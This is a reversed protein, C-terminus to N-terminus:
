FYIGIGLLPGHLEQDATFTRERVTHEIDWIWVTYGLNIGVYRAFKWDAYFAGFFEHEAGVGFGGYEAVAHLAWRGREPHWAVGVTPNWIGPKRKFDPFDEVKITYDLAVRRVGGTVFLDDVVEFGGTLTGYIVDLEADVRPLEPREVGLGAWLGFADVRFRGKEVAFGFFLAGNFSTDTPVRGGTGGGGGGGDGGGGDPLDPVDLEAGFIPLWGLLPYISVNWGEDDSAQAFASTPAAILLIVVVVAAFVRSLLLSM